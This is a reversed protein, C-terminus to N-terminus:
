LIEAYIAHMLTGLFMRNAKTAAESRQHDAKMSPFCSPEKSGLDDLGFPFGVLGQKGHLAMPGCMKALYTFDFTMVLRQKVRERPLLTDVISLNQALIDPFVLSLAPSPLSQTLLTDLKSHSRITSEKSFGLVSMLSSSCGNTALLLATQQVIDAETQSMKRPHRLTTCGREQRELVDLCGMMIGQAAPHSAFTGNCCAEALRCSIKDLDTLDGSALKATFQWSLQKLDSSCDGANVALCPSVTSAYFFKLAEASEGRMSSIWSNRVYKQLEQNGLALLEDGKKTSFRYLASHKFNSILSEVAEDSKFLRASLLQAAFHKTALRIPARLSEAAFAPSACTTCTPRSGDSPMQCLKKCQDHKLVLEKKAVDYSYLHRVLNQQMNSYSAWLQLEQAYQSTKGPGHTLSVGECPVLQKSEESAETGGPEGAQGVAADLSAIHSPSRCHQQIFHRFIKSNGSSCADFVKGEPKAKSKCVTCQLPVSKGHSGAPLIRLVKMERVFAEFSVSSSQPQADDEHPVLQNEKPIAPEPANENAQEEAGPIPLLDHFHGAVNSSVKELRQMLKQSVPSPMGPDPFVAHKLLPELDGLSFGNSELMKHCTLCVPPKLELLRDQMECWAKCSVDGPVMPFRVHYAQAYPWTIGLSALYAKVASRAKADSTLVKSKCSRNRKKSRKGNDDPLDDVEDEQQEDDEDTMGVKANSGGSAVQPPEQPPEQGDEQQEAEDPTTKRRCRRAKKKPQAKVAPREIEDAIRQQFSQVTNDRKIIQNTGSETVGAFARRGAGISRTKPPTTLDVMEVCGKRRPPTTLLIPELKVSKRDPEQKSPDRKVSPDLSAVCRVFIQQWLPMPVASLWLDALEKRAAQCDPLSPTYRPNKANLAILTWIACNGDGPVETAFLDVRDLWKQLFQFNRIQRIRDSAHTLVSPDTSEFCRRRLTELEDDYAKKKEEVFGEPLEARHWVPSFHNLGLKALLAM